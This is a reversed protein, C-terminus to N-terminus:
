GCKNYGCSIDSCKICGEIRILKKGCEPCTEELISEVAYKALTRTLAKCFATVSTPVQGLQDVIFNLDINQRLGLVSIMRTLAQEEDSGFYKAINKITVSETELNYNKGVKVLNGKKVNKGLSIEMEKFDFIEYPKNKFLGVVVLWDDGSAKLHHIDCPLVKPRKATITVVEDVKKLVASMTGARYTTLGKITGTKWANIYLNKFDEYPYTNPLNITKSLAADVYTAVIKMIDLHADVGLQETTKSWDATSDWEGISKLYHVAYDEVLSEKVYGGTQSWKYIVGDLVITKFLVDGEMQTSAWKDHTPLGEPLFDVGHTRLYETMFVPEFGGSINNALIGTNGTPQVSTLHSNRLGYMKILTMTEENLAGKWFNSALFNEYNWLPFAGKEKALLASAQYIKNTVFDFYDKVLQKSKEGGYEAHMIMLASGLGTVGIGIRRKNKIEEYQEPLPMYTVDIVNDLMRVVSPIVKALSTYDWDTRDPTIFQTANLSGLLCAGGIPLPQEGCPNTANIIEIKTLNNMRNITDVFLCGPEARNYTSKMILDYLERAPLTKYVRVTGGSSIWKEIDGNWTKKYFDKDVEIDPFILSWSQDREVAEMFKDTLLVSMNFKTLRGVTQKATIFEEIDPHWVYSTVMQAGKRNKKKGEKSEMGSGETIIQSQKDWMELFKVMGPTASGIGKIITGRPRLVSACFGYGGESKLILAQRRLEALIGEMSDQDEGRFGSVFCNIYSTSKYDTGANSLIRGGPIFKFDELAYQFEKFTFESLIESESLKKAVRTWMGQIDEGKYQYTTIFIEESLKSLM